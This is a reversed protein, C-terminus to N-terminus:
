CLRDRSAARVKRTSTKEMREAWTYLTVSTYSVFATALIIIGLLVQWYKDRWIGAQEIEGTNPLPECTLLSRAFSSVRCSGYNNTFVLCFLVVLGIFNGFTIFLAIQRPSPYHRLLAHVQLNLM